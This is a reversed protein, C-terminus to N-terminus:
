PFSRRERRWGDVIESVRGILRDADRCDVIVMLRAVISHFKGVRREDGVAARAAKEKLTKIAYFLNDRGSDLCGLERALSSVLDGAARNEARLRELEDDRDPEGTSEKMPCLTGGELARQCVPRWSMALEGNRTLELGHGCFLELLLM